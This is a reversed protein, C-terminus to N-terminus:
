STVRSIKLVRRPKLYFSDSITVTGYILKGAPSSYTYTIEALIVSGGQGSTIIGAPVSVTSNVGRPSTNQADSWAVKVQNNGADVLSSIVIKTGTSPYPYMIANVAAFVDAVDSNSVTKVQAVLDAATSAMSTVKASASMEDTIETIGFYLTIMAPAILAFEMAAIGKESVGFRRLFRLTKAVRRM